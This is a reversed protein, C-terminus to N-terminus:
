EEILTLQVKGKKEDISKIKFDMIDSVNLFDQVDAVYEKSIQSIHILGDNKIGIDVFAGFQVINRVQGKVRMGPKLDEIKQITPDFEVIQMEEREDINPNQLVRLIDEIVVGSVEFVKALEEINCDDIKQSLENSGIDSKDMELYKLLQDALKYKEPHIFLKDYINDGDYIKLFGACQEFAKAGLRKVDKIEKRSKFSGNENRYDVINKAITRDLGSVYKLLEASATNLDVGVHNINKLMVFDLNESLQKQNVDHQYQGVGISKPEIKVLEAMPDQLRRAISAASRQEVQLDPFEKKAIESASYVSAGAESVIAIKYEAFNEKFFRETERSATGNGIAIYEVPYRELIELVKKASEKHLKEKKIEENNKPHPYIVGIEKVTSNPNIVALKCGTRYAPDVGLIWKDKLPPQMILEDLNDAFVQIAYLGAKETLDKRVEREISPFILRKYADNIIDAYLMEVDNNPQLREAKIIYDIINQNELQLKVTIVKEKEARNFALVRYSPIKSVIQSFSYYIEYKGLEDDHDKKVKTVIIGNRFAEKRVEKRYKANDSIREALIYSAGKIAEDVDKVDDNIFSQAHAIITKMDYSFTAIYDALPELGFKIAETAKTKKKEKYPLYLDEIEQLKQANLIMKELESTLMGKEDILRIIEEKRTQLNEQYKYHKEIERIEEENLSGTVEKRYRAIFPVTSGENLLKLVVEISKSSVNLEKSIKTILMEKM